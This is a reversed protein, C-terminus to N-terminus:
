LTRFSLFSLLDLCFLVFCFSISVDVNTGPVPFVKYHPLEKPVFRYFEQRNKYWKVSYLDDGELDYTCILTVTKGLAIAAPADIKVDKLSGVVSVLFSFM